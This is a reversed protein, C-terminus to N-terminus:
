EFKTYGFIVLTAKCSGSQQYLDTLTTVLPNGTEIKLINFVNDNNSTTIYDKIDISQQQTFDTDSGTFGNAGFASPIETYTVNKFDTIHFAMDCAIKGGINNTDAKYLKLNRSYGNIITPTPDDLYVKYETPM